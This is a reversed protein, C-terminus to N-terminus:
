PSIETKHDPFVLVASKVELIPHHLNMTQLFYIFLLLQSPKILIASFVSKTKPRLLIRENKLLLFPYM